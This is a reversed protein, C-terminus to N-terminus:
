PILNYCKRPLMCIFLTEWSDRIFCYTVHQMMLLHHTLWVMNMMVESEQFVSVASILCSHVNMLQWAEVALENGSSLSHLINWSYSVLQMCLFFIVWQINQSQLLDFIDKWVKRIDMDQYFGTIYQRHKGRGEGRWFNTVTKIKTKCSFPIKELEM